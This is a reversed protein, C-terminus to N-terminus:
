LPRRAQHLERQVPELADNDDQQPSQRELRQHHTSHELGRLCPHAKKEQSTDSFCM